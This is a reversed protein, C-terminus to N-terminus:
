ESGEFFLSLDYGQKKLNKENKKWIKVIQEVPVVNTIGYKIFAFNEVFAKDKYPYNYNYNTNDFNEVPRLINKYDAAASKAIGVFEFNPVGDRIALVIGGSLGRNFPADIIFDDERNLNPNGVIGKTVMKYGGPYGLLYIFSGMELEKARGIPTHFVTLIRDPKRIQKGLIAVDHREDLLLIELNDGGPICTTYNSQKDKFSISELFPTKKGNELTYYTYITDPFNVIHACTLFAIKGYDHSIITATGSSSRYLQSKEISLNEINSENLNEPKVLSNQLFLYSSYYAVSNDYM